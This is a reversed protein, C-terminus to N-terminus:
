SVAATASGKFGWDLEGVVGVGVGMVAATSGAVLTEEAGGGTFVGGVEVGVVGVGGEGTGTGTGTDEVEELFFLSDPFDM